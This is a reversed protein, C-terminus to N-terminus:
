KRAMHPEGGSLECCPLKSRSQSLDLVEGNIYHESYRRAIGDANRPSQVDPAGQTSALCVASCTRFAMNAGSTKRRNGKRETISSGVPQTYCVPRPEEPLSWLPQSRVSPAMKIGPMVRLTGERETIPRARGKRLCVASWGSIQAHEIQDDTKQCRSGSATIRNM